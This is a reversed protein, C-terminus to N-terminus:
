EIFLSLFYLCVRGAVNTLAKLEENLANVEELHSKALNNMEKKHSQILEQKEKTIDKM